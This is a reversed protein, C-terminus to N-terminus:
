ANLGKFRDNFDLAPLSSMFPCPPGCLDGPFSAAVETLRVRRYRIGATPSWRRGSLKRNDGRCDSVVSASFLEELKRVTVWKTMGSSM